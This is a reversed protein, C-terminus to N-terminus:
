HTAINGLTMYVRTFEEGHRSGPIEAVKQFGVREYAKLAAANDGWAELWVGHNGYLANNADLIAQTYPLANGQGVAENYIRIAFTTEAGPITPEDDGPKGPGMWGFGALVLAGNGAKKVLPLALRGKSQWAMVKEVSGFRKTPDNPCFEAIHPQGSSEVLQEALALDLGQMVYLGRENLVAQNVTEPLQGVSSLFEIPYRAM